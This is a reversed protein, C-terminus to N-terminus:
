WFSLTYTILMVFEKWVLLVKVCHYSDKNLMHFYLFFMSCYCSCLFLLFTSLIWCNVNLKNRICLQIFINQRFVSCLLFYCFMIVQHITLHIPWEWVRYKGFCIALYSRHVNGNMCFCIIWIVPILHIYLFLVFYTLRRYSINNLIGDFFSCINSIQYTKAVVSIYIWWIHNNKVYYSVRSNKLVWM